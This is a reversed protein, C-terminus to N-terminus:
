FISLPLPHIRIVPSLNLQLINQAQRRVEDDSLSNNVKIVMSKLLDYKDKDLTQNSNLPIFCQMKEPPAETAAGIHKRKKSPEVTQKQGDKNQSKGLVSKQSKSSSRGQILGNFNQSPNGLIRGNLIGSAKCADNEKLIKGNSEKLITGNLPKMHNELSPMKELLFQYTKADLHGDSDSTGNGKSTQKSSSILVNQKKLNSDLPVLEELVVSLRMTPYVNSNASTPCDVAKSKESGSKKLSRLLLNTSSKASHKGPVKSSNVPLASRSSSVKSTACKSETKSSVSVTSTIKPACTAVQPPARATTSSYGYVDKSSLVTPQYGEDRLGQLFSVLQTETDTLDKSMPNFVRLAEELAWKGASDIRSWSHVAKEEMHDEGVNM